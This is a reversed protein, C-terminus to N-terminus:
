AALREPKLLGREKVVEAVAARIARQLKVQPTVPTVTVFNLFSLDLLKTSVVLEVVRMVLVCVLDADYVVGQKECEKLIAELIPDM